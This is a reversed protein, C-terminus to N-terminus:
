KRQAILSFDYFTNLILFDYYITNCSKKNLYKKEGEGLYDNIKFFDM